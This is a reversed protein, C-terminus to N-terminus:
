ISNFITREYYSLIDDPDARLEFYSNDDGPRIITISPSEYLTIKMHLESCYKNFVKAYKEDYGALLKYIWEPLDLERLPSLQVRLFSLVREWEPTKILYDMAKQDDPNKWLAELMKQINSLSYIDKEYYSEIETLKSGKFPNDKPAIYIKGEDTLWVAQTDSITIVSKLKVISGNQEEQEVWEDPIPKQSYMDYFIANRYTIFKLKKWGGSSPIDKILHTLLYNAM